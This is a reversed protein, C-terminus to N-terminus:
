QVCNELMNQVPMMLVQSEEPVPINILYWEKELIHQMKKDMVSPYNPDFAASVDSSLVHSNQLARRLALETYQGAAAMVEATM